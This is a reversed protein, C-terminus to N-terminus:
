RMDTLAAHACGCGLRGAVPTHAAYGALDLAEDWGNQQLVHRNRTASRSAPPALQDHTGTLKRLAAQVDDASRIRARAVPDGRMEAAFAPITPRRMSTRIM